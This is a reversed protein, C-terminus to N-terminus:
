RRRRGKEARKAIADADNWGALWDERASETTFPCASEPRDFYRRDLWGVRHWDRDNVAVIRADVRRAYTM